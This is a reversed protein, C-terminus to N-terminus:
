IWRQYEGNLVEFDSQQIGGKKLNECMSCKFQWDIWLAKRTSQQYDFTNEFSDEIQKAKVERSDVWNYLTRKARPLSTWNKTPQSSCMITKFNDSSTTRAHWKTDSESKIYTKQCWQWKECDWFYTSRTPGFHSCVASFLCYFYITM